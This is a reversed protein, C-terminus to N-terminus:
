RSAGDLHVAAILEGQPSAAGSQRVCDVGVRVQREEVLVEGVGGEVLEATSAASDIVVGLTVADELVGRGM